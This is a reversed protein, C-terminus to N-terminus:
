LKPNQTQKLYASYFWIFPRLFFYLFFLSDPLKLIKWDNFNPQLVTWSSLKHNISSKLRMKYFPVRLRSIKRSLSRSEDSVAATISENVISAVIRNPKINSPSGFFMNALIIAQEVPRDNGNRKASEIIESPNVTEDSLLQAIDRLWHLRFWQHLAGHLCLYEILHNKSLVRIPKGGMILEQSEAFVQGTPIPFLSKQGFLRWHLEVLCGNEVNRYAFQNKHKKYFENQKKSLTFDPYVKRYGQSLLIDNVMEINEPLVLIDVDRSPRMATDGYIQLSLFPGKLLISSIGADKLINSIRVGETALRLVHQTQTFYKEKLAPPLELRSYLFDEKFNKYLILSLRHRESLRMLEDWSFPKAILNKIGDKGDGTEAGCVSVLIRQEISLSSLLQARNIIPMNKIQLDIDSVLSYTENQKKTFGKHKRAKTANKDQWLIVLVSFRV